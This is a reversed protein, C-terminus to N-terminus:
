ISSFHTHKGGTGETIADQISKSIIRRLQTNGGGGLMDNNKGDVAEEGAFQQFLYRCHIKLIKIFTHSYLLYPM